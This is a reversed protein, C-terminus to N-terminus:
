LEGCVACGVEFNVPDMRKYANKIITHELDFSCPPPPFEAQLSTTKEAPSGKLTASTLQTIKERHKRIRMANKKVLDDEVSFITTYPLCRLCKHQEVCSRLQTVTCCLGAVIGHTMAINRAATISLLQSVVPLPIAAHIFWDSPYAKLGMEDVYAVYHLSSQKNSM